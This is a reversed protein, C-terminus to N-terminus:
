QEEHYSGVDINYNLFLNYSLMVFSAIFVGITFEWPLLFYSILLSTFVLLIWNHLTKM